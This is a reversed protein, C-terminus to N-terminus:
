CRRWCSAPRDGVGVAALDDLRELDAGAGVAADEVGLGAQDEAGAAAVARQGDDALLRRALVLDGPRDLGLDAGLRDRQVGLGMAEVERGGRGLRARRRRCPRPRLLAAAAAVHGAREDDEHDALSKRHTAPTVLVNGRVEARLAVLAIALNKDIRVM